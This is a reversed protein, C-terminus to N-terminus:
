VMITKLVLDKDQVRIVEELLDVLVQDMVVVLEKEIKKVSGKVPTLSDLKM